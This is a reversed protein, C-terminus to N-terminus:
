EGSVGLKVGIRVRVDQGDIVRVSRKGDELTSFGASLALRRANKVAGFRGASFPAFTVTTAPERAIGEGDVPAAGIVRQRLEFLSDLVVGTSDLLYAQLGFFVTWDLDPIRSSRATLNSYVFQTGTKYQRRHDLKYADTDMLVALAARTEATYDAPIYTM